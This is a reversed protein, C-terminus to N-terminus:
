PKLIIGQCNVASTNEDAELIPVQDAFVQLLRLCRNKCCVRWAGAVCKYVLGPTADYISEPVVVVPLVISSMTLEFAASINNTRAFEMHRLRTMNVTDNSVFAKGADRVLSLAQADCGVIDAPVPLLPKLSTPFILFAGVVAYQIKASDRPEDDSKPPFAVGPGCRRLKRPRKKFHVRCIEDDDVLDLLLSEDFSVIPADVCQHTEPPQGGRQPMPTPERYEVGETPSSSSSSPTTPTTSIRVRVAIAARDHKSLFELTQQGCCREVALAHLDEWVVAGAWEYERDNDPRLSRRSESKSKFQSQPQLQSQSESQASAWKLSIAHGPHVEIPTQLKWEAGEGSSERDIDRTLAVNGLRLSYSRVPLNQCAM